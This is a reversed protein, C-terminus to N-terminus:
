QIFKINDPAILEIKGDPLEVIAMTYSAVSERTEAVNTGWIHFKGDYIYDTYYYGEADEKKIWKKFKIPVKNM